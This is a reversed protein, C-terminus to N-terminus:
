VRPPKRLFAAADPMEHLVAFALIFDVLDLADLQM